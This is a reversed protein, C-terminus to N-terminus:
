RRFVEAPALGAVVRAPFFAAVLAMGLGALLSWEVDSPDFVILFQPRAAMIWQSIGYALLVGTAAGATAAALAQTVVIQYLVRNTAGIAKVVGYERQREVTITYIVLGVIMTGVLFAIAVMLKLPASFIKVFLKLDNGSMEGKTLANVGSLSNLRRLIGDLDANASTTLLLFSTAGPALLLEEAADKRLFFFSTMWSTTGNSLGVITFDKGLVEVPDGIKLGHRDALVRDFVMEKKTRPERGAALDWPGGGQDPDYGVMYAPQKKEHLDLIVFQSLIPIAEKIGRIAKVRSTIGAPLLSTSGLLNVVDEQAVVVSGPSRDLYSTIQRYMGTLFGNLVLILMVSLAVGGVSLVMRTKDKLLNRGALSMM